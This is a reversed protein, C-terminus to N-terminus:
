TLQHENNTRLAVPPGHPRIGLWVAQDFVECYPAGPRQSRM